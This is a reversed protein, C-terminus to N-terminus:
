ILRKLLRLKHTYTGKEENFIGQHDLRDIRVKGSAHIIMNNLYVIGVHTIRGEANDFFALDGPRAESIFGLTIGQDAQQYADRPLKIGVCKFVLQTFGSCDIGLPSKGGWLYPANLLSYAISLIQDDLNKGNATLNTSGEYAYEYGELNCVGNDLLPLHAGLSILQTTKNEVNSLINILELALVLHKKSIENYSDESISLFQNGDIWCEYDDYHNRIYYWDEEIRLVKFHEGFLLQTVLESKHSPEMRGPILSINVIGHSIKYSM